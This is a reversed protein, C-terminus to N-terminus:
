RSPRFILIIPYAMLRIILPFLLAPILFLPSIGVLGVISGARDLVSYSPDTVALYLEIGSPWLLYGLISAAVLAILGFWRRNGLFRAIAFDSLIFAAALAIAYEHHFEWTPKPDILYTSAVSLYSGIFHGIADTM